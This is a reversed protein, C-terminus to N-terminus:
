QECIFDKGKDNWKYIKIDEGCIFQNQVNTYRYQKGDDDCIFQNPVDVYRYMRGDDDCIFQEGMDHYEYLINDDDDCIFQEGLNHYEYIIGGEDYDCLFQNPVDNYRKIVGCQESLHELMQTIASSTTTWTVGGDYSIQTEQVRYLDFNQCTTATSITRTQAPVYGCDTSEYEYPSGMQYEAPVVDSYTAGSDVSVQKKQKYYKTTGSCYYGDQIPLNVWRYVIASEPCASCVFDQAIPITVWQTQMCASSGSTILAGTSASVTTWNVGDVSTQYVSIYHLDGQVCTTGSNITRSYHGIYGCDRSNRELLRGTTVSITTWNVGDNSSQYVNRAHKDYQECTYGSEITRYQTSPTGQDAGCETDASSKLSLPKTGNADVSYELPLYPVPVDNGWQIYKQYLYYSSYNAM